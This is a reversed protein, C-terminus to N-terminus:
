PSNTVSKLCTMALRFAAYAEPREAAAWQQKVGIGTVLGTRQAPAAPMSTAGVFFM